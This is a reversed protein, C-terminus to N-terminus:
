GWATVWRAEQGEAHVRPQGEPSRRGRRAGWSLGKLKEDLYCHQFTLCSCTVRSTERDRIPQAPTTPVSPCPVGKQRAEDRFVPSSSLKDLERREFASLGLTSCLLKKVLSAKIDGESYCRHGCLAPLCPCKSQFAPLLYPCLSFPSCGSKMVPIVLKLMFSGPAQSGLVGAGARLLCAHGCCKPHPFFKFISLTVFETQADPTNRM